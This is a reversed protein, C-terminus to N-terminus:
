SGRGTVRYSAEFLPQDGFPHDSTADGFNRIQRLTVALAKNEGSGIARKRFTVPVGRNEHRASGANRATVPATATIRQPGIVELSVNRRDRPAGTAAYEADPGSRCHCRSKATGRGIASLHGEISSQDIQSVESATAFQRGTARAM